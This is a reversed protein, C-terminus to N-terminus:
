GPRGGPSARAQRRRLRAPAARRRRARGRGAPFPHLRARDHRDARRRAPRAPRRPHARYADPDAPEGRLKAEALEVLEASGHRIVTCDAAFERRSGTSMLSACRRRPASCASRRPDEVARRGAQDGARHRRDAPRARRPGRRARHDLRHQLRHRDARPDYREALRGLLAPVRAAIEAASKTGYPYGASDAVYVIPATPCCRRPDAAAGVPRRRRFRLDAPAAAGAMRRPKLPPPAPLALPTAKSGFQQAARRSQSLSARKPSTRHVSFDQSGGSSESAARSDSPEIGNPSRSVRSAPAPSRRLIPEPLIPAVLTSRVPRLPRAAAM